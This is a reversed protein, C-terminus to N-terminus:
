EGALIYRGGRGALMLLFAGVALEASKSSAIDSDGFLLVALALILAGIAAAASAWHVVRGARVLPSDPAERGPWLLPKM